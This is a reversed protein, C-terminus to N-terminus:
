TLKQSLWLGKKKFGSELEKMVTEYVLEEKLRGESGKLKDILNSIISM